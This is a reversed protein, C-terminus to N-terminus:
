QKDKNMDLQAGVFTGWVTTILGAFKDIENPYKVIGIFAVVTILVAMLFVKHQLLQM